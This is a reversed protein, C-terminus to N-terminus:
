FCRSFEEPVPFWKGGHELLDLAVGGLATGEWGM